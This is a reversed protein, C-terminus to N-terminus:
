KMKKGFMPNNKGSKNRNKHYIFEESYIITNKDRKLAALRIKARAEISHKYNFSSTGKELINYEPLYKLLYYDERGLRILRSDDETKGIIELIILTFSKLGYNKIASTIPYSRKLYSNQYYNSLRKYLNISSGIYCKGNINNYWMYIGSKNYLNMKLKNRSEEPNNCIFIPKTVLKEKLYQKYLSFSSNIDIPLISSYRILINYDVSFNRKM